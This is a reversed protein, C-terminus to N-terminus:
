KGEAKDAAAVLRAALDPAAATSMSLNCIVRSDMPLVARICATVKKQGEYEAPAVAVEADPVGGVGSICKVTM